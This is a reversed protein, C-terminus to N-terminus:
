QATWGGDMPIATGTINHSEPACLFMALHAIEAPSSLRLSPQKEALMSNIAAETSVGL